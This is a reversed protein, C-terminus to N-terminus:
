TSAPTQTSERIVLNAPLTTLRPARTGTLLKHLRAIAANGADAVPLDLATISPTTAGLLALDDASALAVDGPVRIGKATFGHLVGLTVSSNYAIVATVGRPIRDAAAIGADFTPPHPPLLSLRAGASRLYGTISEVRKKNGWTGEPGSVYAIRRHGGAVLHEALAVLGAPTDVVVAPLGPVQRELLVIPRTDALRRVERDPGDAVMVLGDVQSALRMVLRQERDPSHESVAVLLNCDIEEAARQAGLVLPGYYPNTLTPLVLGILGTRGTILARAARNHEFNLRTAAELVRNRTPEAVMEPRALARSATSTSVGAMRAVDALQAV